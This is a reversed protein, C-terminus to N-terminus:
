QNQH